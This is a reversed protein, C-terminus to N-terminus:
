RDFAAISELSWGVARSYAFARLRALLYLKRTRTRKIGPPFATLTIARVEDGHGERVLRSGLAVLTDDLDRM